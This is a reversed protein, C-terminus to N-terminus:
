SNNQAAEGLGLPSRRAFWAECLGVLVMFVSIGTYLGMLENEPIVDVARIGSLLALITCVALGPLFAYIVNRAYRYRRLGKSGGFPWTGSALLYYIATHLAGLTFILGFQPDLNLLEYWRDGIVYEVAVAWVLLFLSRLMGEIAVVVALSQNALEGKDRNEKSKIELARPASLFLSYGIWYVLAYVFTM